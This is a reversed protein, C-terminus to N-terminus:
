TSIRVKGRYGQSPKLLELNALFEQFVEFRPCGLEMSGHIGGLASPAHGNNLYGSPIWLFYVSGVSYRRM